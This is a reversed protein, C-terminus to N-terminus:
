GNILRRMAPNIDDLSLVRDALDNLALRAQRFCEALAALLSDLGLKRAIPHQSATQYGAEGMGEYYSIDPGGRRKARYEIHPMFLGSCFLAQNGMHVRLEFQARDNVTPLAALMEFFYELPASGESVRATCRETRTFETLIAAVYDAIQRDDVGAKRLCRRVLVYFYLQTSIPLWLSSDLVAQHLKPHDLLQDRTDTDLLLQNLFHSDEPKRGLAELIFAVDAATLTLRSNPQIVMM